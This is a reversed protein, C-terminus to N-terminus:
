MCLLELINNSGYLVPLTHTNTHVHFLSIMYQRGLPLMNFVLFLVFLFSVAFNYSYPIKLDVWTCM